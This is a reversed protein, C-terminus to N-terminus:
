SGRGPTDPGGGTIARVAVEVFVGQGREFGPYPFRSGRM